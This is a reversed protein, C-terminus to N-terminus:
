ISIGKTNLDETIARIDASVAVVGHQNVRNLIAADQMVYGHQTRQLTLVVTKPRTRSSSLWKQTSCEGLRTRKAQKTKNKM